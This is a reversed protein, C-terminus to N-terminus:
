QFLGPLPLQGVSVPAGKSKGDIWWTHGIGLAAKHQSEAEIIRVPLRSRLRTWVYRFWSWAREEAEEYSSFARENWATQRGTVARSVIYFGRGDESSGAFGGGRLGDGAPGATLLTGGRLVQPQWPAGRPPSAGAFPDLAWPGQPARPPAGHPHNQDLQM